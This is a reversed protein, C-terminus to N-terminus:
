APPGKPQTAGVQPAVFIISREASDLLASAVRGFSLAEGPRRSVGLVILDHKGMRAQRLIADEPSLDTRIATRIPQESFDALMKIEKVVEAADRRATGFRDRMSGANGALVSLATIPVKAAKALVVAIEAGRRSVESGTVPALINVSSREPDAEHHGRAVVVALSGEFGRALRSVEEHFGGGPGVTPNVGIVLLDYGKRAETAVAEEHPADSRREIVEIPGQAEEDDSPAITGAASTVVQAASAPKATAADRAAAAEPGFNLVTVPINRAGALLGAVRSAFRGKPSDDVAVLIRELTPVFSKAEFSERDLRKREDDRVPLRALALRLTPPMAMTTIVAMTVIMTFLTQNLVGMSLGISAVVIETSGRANMGAALAVAERRNLGGFWSGLFAGAAKGISAILILAVTLWV